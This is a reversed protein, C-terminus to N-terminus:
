AGGASSWDRGVLRIGVTRVIEYLVADDAPAAPLLRPRLIGHYAKPQGHYGYALGSYGIDFGSHARRVAHWNFIASAGLARDRDIAHQVIPGTRTQPNAFSVHDYPETDFRGGFGSLDLETSSTPFLSLNGEIRSQIVGLRVALPTYTIASRSWTFDLRTRKQVLISAGLFGIPSIGIGTVPLLRGPIDNLTAPGFRVLGVGGRLTLRSSVESAQQYMFQAPAVAGQLAGLPSNSPLYSISLSSDSRPLLATEITTGYGFTRLDERSGQAAVASGPEGIERAYSATMHLTSPWEVKERLDTVEPNHPSLRAAHDLLAVAVRRDHRVREINALLVVADFDQPYAQVLREALAQADRVDGQYYEIQAKGYLAEHDKPDQRLVADFQRLSSALRGEKLNVQALLIRAGQNQPEASILEAVDSRAAGYDKMEFELRAEELPYDRNTPQEAALTRYMALADGLRGSWTYLRALNEMTEVDRPQSALLEQNLTIATAYDQRQGLLRALDVKADHDDPYAALLQQYGGIAGEYDGLQAKYYAVAKLSDHDKPYSALRKEYYGLYEDPKARATPHEATWYAAEHAHSVQQLARRVEPDAPNTRQLKDLISRAEVFHNSWYLVLAKGELADYDDPSAALVQDYRELAEAYSGRAGLAQALGLRAESDGSNLALARRFVPIAEASRGAHFLAQGTERVLYEAEPNADALRRYVAVAESYRKCAVLSRALSLELKLNAPEAALMGRDDAITEACSESSHTLQTEAPPAALGDPSASQALLSAASTLITALLLVQRIPITWMARNAVSIRARSNM